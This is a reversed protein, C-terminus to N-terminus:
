KIHDRLMFGVIATILSGLSMLGWRFLSKRDAELDRIRVEAAEVHAELRSLREADTSM